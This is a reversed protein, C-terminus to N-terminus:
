ISLIVSCCTLAADKKALESTNVFDLGMGREEAVAVLAARSEVCPTDQALLYENVVVANCALVNPLRVATYGLDRAQMGDLVADGMGGTPALLTHEDVHTVASKLHLVSSGQVVPAVDIVSIEDFLRTILNVAAANTRNSRGVFLHRGTYLVDGGDCLASADEDAMNIVELGLQQVIDLIVAVEGRRSPHGPRTIVAKNGIAVVTDEVFLCDPFAEDAPVCLVPVHKRLTAVYGDHQARALQMDVPPTNYTSHEAVASAFSDPLSRSIAMTHLGAVWQRRSAQRLALMTDITAVYSYPASMM